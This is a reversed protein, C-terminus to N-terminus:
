VRYGKPLVEEREGLTTMVRFGLVRMTVVEGIVVIQRKKTKV